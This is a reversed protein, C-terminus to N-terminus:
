LFIILCILGTLFGLKVYLNKYKKENEISVKLRNDIETTISKLFELQSHKDGVGISNAYTKAFTMEEESLYKLSFDKSGNINNKLFNYFDNDFKSIIDKLTKQSFGVESTFTKNFSSFNEYFERKKVFKLSLYYGVITSIFLLLVGFFLNM